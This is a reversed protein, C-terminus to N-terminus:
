APLGREFLKIVALEPDLDTFDAAIWRLKARDRSLASATGYEKNDASLCGREWFAREFHEWWQAIAAPTLDREEEFM